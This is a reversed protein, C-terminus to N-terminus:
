PNEQTRYTESQAEAVLPLRIPGNIREYEAIQRDLFLAIQKNRSRREAIAIQSLKKLLTKDASISTQVQGAARDHSKETTAKARMLKLM